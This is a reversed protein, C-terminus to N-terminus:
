SAWRERQGKELVYLSRWFRRDEDSHADRVRQALDSLPIDHLADLIRLKTQEDMM